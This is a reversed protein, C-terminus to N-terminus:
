GELITNVMSVIDVIDMIGDTNLDIKHRNFLSHHNHRETDSYLIYNVLYIIDVVDVIDDLNSDGPILNISFDWDSKRARYTYYGQPYELAFIINKNYDVETVLAGISMINTEFFFGWNILTNQNPLRQVSGMSMAVISDPHAYEWILTATKNVEDLAYEVARSLMPDHQTGNDFLTIHGNEIRRVDHQKNFGGLPDNIFTFENQPGGLIWIIEGTIRNIKFVENNTRNSILLNDDDDVEISNGHMFTIVPAALNIDPYDYLSLHDLANWNLILHDEEDFEQIILIDKILQPVGDPMGLDIWTSDYCQLIYGGNDLLRIDHYDTRGNVCQLTDTEIMDSNAVIWLQAIKDYYSLKGNNERFDFGVEGSNVQWYLSLDSNFIGMHPSETSMTHVFLKSPYPNGNIIINVDPYDAKLPYFGLIGLSLILIKITDRM